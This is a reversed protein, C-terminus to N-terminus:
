SLVRGERDRRGHTKEKDEQHQAYDTHSQTPNNPPVSVRVCLGIRVPSAAAVMAMVTGAVVPGAVAAVIMSVVVVVAVVVISWVGWNSVEEWQLCGSKGASNSSEFHGGDESSRIIIIGDESSRIIITGDESSRIIM